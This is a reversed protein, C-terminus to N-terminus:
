KGSRLQGNEAFSYHQNGAVIIHDLVAIDVLGLAAILNETIAKDALSPEAVGSPHNHALILANANLKLAKEVVVRPYVAAANITGLFLREFQIVQHQNDLFLAAFVERTEGKLEAALYNKTATSSSLQIQKSASEALYRRSLELSAQLQVYKAQGLGKTQCFDSMSAQFIGQLSGFTNLLHRALDVVHCGKIGTRLFIALLEADSLSNAGQKLLKERPREDAPWDTVRNSIPSLFEMMLIGKLQEKGQFDEGSQM